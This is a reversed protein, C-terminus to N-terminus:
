DWEGGDDLILEDQVVKAKHQATTRKDVRKARREHKAETARNIKYTGPTDGELVEDGGQLDVQEIWHGAVRNIEDRIENFKVPQDAANAVFRYVEEGDVEITMAVPDRYLKIWVHLKQVYFDMGIIHGLLGSAFGIHENGMQGMVREVEIKVPCDMPWEGEGTTAVNVKTEKTLRANVRPMVQHTDVKVARAPKM